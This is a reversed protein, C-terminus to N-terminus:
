NAVKWTILGVIVTVLEGAIIGYIFALRMKAEHQKTGIM